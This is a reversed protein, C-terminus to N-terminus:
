KLGYISRNLKMVKGAATGYGEALRLHIGDEVKSQLFAQAVYMDLKYDNAVALGTKLKSM